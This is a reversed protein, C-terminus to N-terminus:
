GLEERDDHGLKAFRYGLCGNHTHGERNAFTHLSILLQELDLGVLRDHPDGSGTAADKTFKARSNSLTVGDPGREAIEFYAILIGFSESM